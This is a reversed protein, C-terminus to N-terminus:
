YCLSCLIGLYPQPVFRLFPTEVDCCQALLQPSLLLLAVLTFQSCDNSNILSATRYQWLTLLMPM